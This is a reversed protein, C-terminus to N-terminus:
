KIQIKQNQKFDNITKNLGKKLSIKPKWNLLKKALKIEPYLTNIEDKRLKVRGYLPRGTKIKGVILKIVSKVKTSKGFGLNISKGAIKKNGITKFLAAILDDIYLFDRKQVGTSCEFNKNLLCSKITIPILRNTDQKPGYVLYLRLITSPFNYKKHLQLLYKSAKLKAKGYTSKLNKKFNIDEERQPSKIDGYEVSSGIQIFSKISTGLFYDAINKCGFYHSNYTKLKEKHNVYGGFNFVFDFDKSLCKYLKKKNSIDCKLYKVKKLIRNKKPNNKSIITINFKKKLCKKAFHYGIFGTGGIILIKNTM